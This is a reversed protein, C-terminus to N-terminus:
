RHTYALVAGCCVGLATMVTLIAGWRVSAPEYRVSVRHTGKPVAVGRILGDVRYIRAPSGDVFAKWGPYFVEGLVLLGAAETATEVEVRNPEYALWRVSDASESSAAEIPAELPRDIVAMRRLDFTPDILRKSPRDSSPDVEAQHVIWSRPMADPNEYVEWVDDTYVAPGASKASPKGGKLRVIYRVGLLERQRDYGIGETYDALLTSSVAWTIPVGYTNGINHSGQMDFHVRPMGQRASIFDALKRDYRLQALSDAGEKQKETKAQVVWGFSYLDWAILFVVIFQAGVTRRARTLFLILAYASALFFFSLYTKETVSIPFHLSAAVLLAAFGIVVWKLVSLLPSLSLVEGPKRDGFLIQVGFGALVAMAFNTAHIFRDAERAINLYPSLYLVGHLLSSSSWTYIWALVALSALYRILFNDWYKWAGIIALILPLVGFYTTMDSRGADVEGLVFAFLSQPGFATEALATYPIREFPRIPSDAGVWRYAFRSYEVSPLLQVAGFLVSIIASTALITGASFISCSQRRSFWVYMTLTAVVIGDIMAIHISGALFTMGLALGAVGANAVRSSAKVSDFARLIFLVILPLWVMADLLYPWPTWQIFGGLGFCIGAVLAPLYNLKLYRALLFMWFAALWHSFVFFLNFARESLLGNQDLPSLYLALKFPYFLSTQMEGIFTTGGYRFPDWLPVIGHHIWRAAYTDWAYHASVIESQWLISFQKTFVIKWYSLLIVITLALIWRASKFGPRSM